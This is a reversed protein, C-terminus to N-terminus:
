KNNEANKNWVINWIALIIGIVALGISSLFWRAVTYPMGLLFPNMVELPAALPSFSYVILILAGVALLSPIVNGHM